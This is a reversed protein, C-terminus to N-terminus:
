QTDGPRNWRKHMAETWDGGGDREQLFVLLDLQHCLSIFAHMPIWGRGGEFRKYEGVPVGIMEAVEEITQGLRQRRSVVFQAIMRRASVIAQDIATQPTNSNISTLVQAAQNGTKGSVGARYGLGEFKKQPDDSEAAAM